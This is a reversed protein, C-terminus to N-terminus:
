LRHSRTEAVQRRRTIAHLAALAALYAVSSGAFILQYSHTWALILGIATAAAAGSASAASGCMGIVSAVERPQFYDSVLTYINAAWGQHGAAASGILVVLLPLSSVHPVLALPTVMVAGALMAFKRARVAEIGHRMLASSLWGGFLSGADAALYIAVLPLALKQLDIGTRSVLFKPTWYLLFWWVPDTLFRALVLGWLERRPLIDRWGANRAAAAQRAPPPHCRRDYAALWLVLWVAGLAATVRFCSRWGFRATLWPVLAPAIIAGVNSGSNFVGTAFSRRDQPFVEGVTKIAAPFNGAEGLGLGFRSAAFGAPSSWLTHSLSSLGWVAVSLAYGARTGLADILRGFLAMSIGYAIQFSTIVYGYQAETWGYDRQLIPALISLIQRDLYNLTTAYFLLACITWRYRSGAATAM